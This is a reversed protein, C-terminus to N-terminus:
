LGGESHGIGNDGDIIHRRVEVPIRSVAHDNSRRTNVFSAPVRASM